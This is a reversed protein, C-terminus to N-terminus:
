GGVMEAKMGLSQSGGIKLELDCGGIDLDSGTLRWGAAEWLWRDARTKLLRALLQMRALGDDGLSKCKAAIMGGRCVLSGERDELQDFIEASWHETEILCADM